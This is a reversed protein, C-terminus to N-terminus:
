TSIERLGTKGRSESCYKSHIANFFAVFLSQSVHLTRVPKNDSRRSTVDLMTGTIRKKWTKRIRRAPYGDVHFKLANKRQISCYDIWVSHCASTIRVKKKDMGSLSVPLMPPMM